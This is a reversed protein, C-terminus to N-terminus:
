FRCGASVSPSLITPWSVFLNVGARAYFGAAKQYRYMLPIMVAPMDHFWERETYGYPDIYHEVRYVAGIGFEVHHQCLPTTIWSITLPFSVTSKFDPYVGVRFHLRRKEGLSREYNLSAWGSSFDHRILYVEAYLGNRKLVSYNKEQSFLLTNLLILSFALLVTAKM